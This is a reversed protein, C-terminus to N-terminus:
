SKEADVGMCYDCVRFKFQSGDPNAHVKLPGYSHEICSTSYTPDYEIEVEFKFGCAECEMDGGDEEHIGSPQHGHECKPCDITDM